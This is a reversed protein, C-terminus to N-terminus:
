IKNKKGYILKNTIDFEVPIFMNESSGIKEGNLWYEALCDVGEFRISVSKRNITEPLDFEKEYWWEYNEYNKLELINSGWFLDKPLIGAESLDLEVNGPVDAIIKNASNKEYDIFDKLESNEQAFFYLDWKGNLSYKQMM